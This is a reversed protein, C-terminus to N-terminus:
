RLTAGLGYHDSLHTPETLGGITVPETFLRQADLVKLNKVLIHDILKPTSDDSIFTNDACDTCAEPAACTFGNSGLLAYNDEWVGSFTETSPGTNLDGMLVIPGSPAKEAVFALLEDIQTRQLGKWDHEVIDFSSTLHTCFINVPEGEARAVKAYLVNARVVYSSLEKMGRESPEARTLLGNDFAGGYIAFDIATDTTGGLECAAILPDICMDAVNGILCQLCSGSVAVIDSMCAVQACTSLQEGCKDSCSQKVCAEVAGLEGFDCAAPQEPPRPDMRVVHSLESKAAEVLAQWDKQVWLEQVCLVDRDKALAGLADVVPKAREEAHDVDLPALGTNFTAVRFWSPPEDVNADGCAGALCGILFLGLGWHLRRMAVEELDQSLAISTGLRRVRYREFNM